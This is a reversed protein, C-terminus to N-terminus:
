QNDGFLVKYASPYNTQLDNAADAKQQDTTLTSFTARARAVNNKTAADLANFVSDSVTNMVRPATPENNMINVISGVSMMTDVESQPVIRETPPDTSTDVTKYIIKNSAMPGSLGRSTSWEARIERGGVVGAWEHLISNLADIQAPKNPGTAKQVNMIQNAYDRVLPMLARTTTARDNTQYWKEIELLDKDDQGIATNPHALLSAAHVAVTPDTLYRNWAPPSGKGSQRFFTIGDKDDARTQSQRSIELAQRQYESLHTFQYQAQQLQAQDTYSSLIRDFTEGGSKSQHIQVIQQAMDPTVAKNMMASVLQPVNFKGSQISEDADFAQQQLQIDNNIQKMRADFEQPDTINKYNLAKLQAQGTEIGLQASQEQLNQIRRRQELDEAGHAKMYKAEASPTIANIRPAMKSLGMKDLAGPNMYNYDAIQQAFTIDTAMKQTVADRTKKMPDILDVITGGLSALSQGLKLGFGEESYVM